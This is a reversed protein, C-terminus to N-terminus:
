SPPGTTMDAILARLMELDRRRADAKPRPTGDPVLHVRVRALRDRLVDLDAQELLGERLVLAVYNGLQVVDVPEDMPVTLVRISMGDGYDYVLCLRDSPLLETTGDDWVVGYGIDAPWRQGAVTMVRVVTGTRSWVGAGIDDIPFVRDGTAFIAMGSASDTDWDMGDRDPM